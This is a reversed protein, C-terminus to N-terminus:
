HFLGRHRLIGKEGDIFTIASCCSGTNGFGPDVTIYGTQDRLRGVDIGRENETGEVLPLEIEEGDLEIRAEHPM